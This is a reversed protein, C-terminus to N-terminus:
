LRFPIFTFPDGAKFVSQEAPLELFGDVNNLNIFDGSGGGVAPVAILMGNEFRTKVQLFHTLRPPFSFDSALIAQLPGLKVGFSTLMWPRIYRYFCMFTSVPNGPLAFVTTRHSRGFWFPKGPRQAVQHFEKKVGNRELVQPIFDFKGQSVGGSLVIVEFHELLGRLERELLQNDDRFHFMEAPWKMQQMAAFLAYSNSRRIQHPLPMQDIAVLEDGTSVVATRPFQAVAVSSKGVSAMVAIEAPSLVLGPSLLMQSAKGDAGKRHINQGPEITANSINAVSNQVTIDEYRVVTDTGAPLMAGTMVEIANISERLRLAPEGAAQVGELPFVRQGNQFADFAIAIGDMTVRDFPPFDRDALVQEKLIRGEASKIEVVESSVDFLHNFIAAEAEQVSIM